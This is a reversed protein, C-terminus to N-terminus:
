VIAASAEPFLRRARAASMNGVLVPGADSRVYAIVSDDTDRILPRMGGHRTDISGLRYHTARNPHNSM